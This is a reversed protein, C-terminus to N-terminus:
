GRLWSRRATVRMPRKRTVTSVPPVNESKTKRSVCLPLIEIKLSGDVGSSGDRAIRAPWANAAIAPGVAAPWVAVLDALGGNPGFDICDWCWAVPDYM